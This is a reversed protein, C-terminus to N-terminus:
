GCNEIMSRFCDDQKLGVKVALWAGTDIERQMEWLEFPQVLITPPANAGLGWLQRGTQQM